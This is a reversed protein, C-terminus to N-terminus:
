ATKIKIADKRGVKGSDIVLLVGDCRSALIYPDSLTAAPAILIILDFDYRLEDITALLKSSALLESPNPPIPGSPLVYLLDIHTKQVQAIADSEDTLISALGETNNVQFVSHLKPSRLDADIILVKKSTQAFAISLNIATVIKGDGNHASTFMIVKHNENLSSYELNTRLSRYAECVSSQPNTDMIIQKKLRRNDLPIM